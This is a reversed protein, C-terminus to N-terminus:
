NTRPFITDLQSQILQNIERSQAIAVARTAEPTACLKTKIRIAEFQRGTREEGLWPQYKEGRYLSFIEVDYDESIETLRRWLPNGPQISAAAGNAFNIIYSEGPHCKLWEVYETHQLVQLAGTVCWVDFNVSSGDPRREPQYRGEPYPTPM